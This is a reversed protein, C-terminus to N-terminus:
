RQKSGAVAEDGRVNCPSRKLGAGSQQLYTLVVQAGEDFPMRLIHNLAILQSRHATLQWGSAVSPLASLVLLALAFIQSIRTIQPKFVIGRHATLSSCHATLQWGSAISPLASLM